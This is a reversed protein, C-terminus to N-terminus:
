CFLIHSHSAPEKKRQKWLNETAANIRQHAMMCKPFTIFRGNIGHKVYSKSARACAVNIHTCWNSTYGLHAFTQNKKWKTHKKVTQNCFCASYLSIPIHYYFRSICEIWEWFVWAHAENKLPCMKYCKQQQKKERTHFEM